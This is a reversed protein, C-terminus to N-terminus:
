LDWQFGRFYAVQIESMAFGLHYGESVRFGHRVLASEGRQRDSVTAWRVYIMSKRGYTENSFGEPSAPLGLIRPGAPQSTLDTLFAHLAKRNKM